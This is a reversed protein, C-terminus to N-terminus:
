QGRYPLTPDFVVAPHIDTMNLARLRAIERLIDRYVEINAGLREGEPGIGFLDRFFEPTILSDFNDM